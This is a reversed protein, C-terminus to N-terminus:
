HLVWLNFSGLPTSDDDILPSAGRLLPDESASIYGGPLRSYDCRHTGPLASCLRNMLIQHSLLCRSLSYRSIRSERRKPLMVVFVADRPSNDEVWVKSSHLVAYAAPDEMFDEYPNKKRIFLETVWYLINL